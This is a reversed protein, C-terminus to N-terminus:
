HSNFHMEGFGAIFLVVAIALFLLRARPSINILFCILFVTGAIVAGMGLEGMIIIAM